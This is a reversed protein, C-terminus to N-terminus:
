SGGNLLPRGSICLPSCMLRVSKRPCRSTVSRTFGRRGLWGRSGRWSPPVACCVTRGRRYLRRSDAASEFEESSRGVGHSLAPDCLAGRQVHVPDRARHPLLINTGGCVEIWINGCLTRLDELRRAGRDIGIPLGSEWVSGFDQLKCCMGDAEGLEVSNAALAVVDIRIEDVGSRFIDFVKKGHKFHHGVCSEIRLPVRSRFGVNPADESLTPPASASRTQPVVKNSMLTRFFLSIVTVSRSWSSPYKISALSWRRDSRVKGAM